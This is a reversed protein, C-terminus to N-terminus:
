SRSARRASEQSLAGLDLTTTIRQDVVRNTEDVKSKNGTRRSSPSTWSDCSDRVVSRWALHQRVASELEAYRQEDAALCVLTNRRERNGSGRSAVLEHAFRIAASDPDKNKHRHM